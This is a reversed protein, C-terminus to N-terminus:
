SNFPAVQTVRLMVSDHAEVDVATFTDTFNGLDVGNWVDRVTAYIHPPDTICCLKNGFLDEFNLTINQVFNARNFLVVAHINSTINRNHLPSIDHVRSYGNRNNSYNNSSHKESQTLWPHVNSQQGQAALKQRILLIDEGMSSPDYLVRSWVEYTGDLARTIMNGALGVPDQNIAIVEQNMLLTLSDQTVNRIDFGILLPSAAVSWISMQTRYEYFTQAGM